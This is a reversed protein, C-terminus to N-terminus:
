PSVQDRASEMPHILTEKRNRQWLRLAQQIRWWQPWSVMWWPDGRCPYHGAAIRDEPRKIRARHLVFQCRAGGRPWDRCAQPRRNYVTCGVKQGLVGTLASCAWQNNLVHLKMVQQEPKKPFHTVHKQETKKLRAADGPAMNIFGWYHEKPSCWTSPACCLGCATCQPVGRVRLWADRIWTM